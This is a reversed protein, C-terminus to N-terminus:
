RGIPIDGHPASGWRHSGAALFGSSSSLWYWVGTSARWLTFDVRGDGDLDKMLPVDGLSQNGFQRAGAAAYDFATTSTLWYWTGTSARWVIPDAKGDGDVDGTFPMDGLSVNGWQIPQANAYNFDTSSTLWYWTGTSGRWIGLDARNDGDFDGLLPTDGLDANGWQIARMNAYSYNTSSTLWYWTGTSARWVVLDSRGDGDMDALRPVDGLADSGFQVSGHPVGSASGIWFWTATTARWVVFDAKGDGDMDAMFPRDGHADSGFERASAGYYYSGSTTWYFMGTSRRWIALDDANDGDVDSSVATGPGRFVARCERPQNVELMVQAGAFPGLACDGLWRSFIYGPAPTATLTIRAPASLHTVCTSAGYGCNLSAGTVTGNAPPVISVRYDPYAGNFPELSTVSSNYRIGGFLGKNGTRRCHIEFDVALRAVTGDDNFAVEHVYFWADQSSPSCTWSLENSFFLYPLEQATTDRAGYYASLERWGKYGPYFTMDWRTTGDFVVRVLPIQTLQSAYRWTAVFRGSQEGHLFKHGEGYFEGPESDLFLATIPGAEFHAECRIRQNVRVAAPIFGFGACAPSWGTFVYGPDPTATLGVTAPADLTLSCSTQSGGCAIGGGTVTGHAPRVVDLSYVPYHGGFPLFAYISSRYRISGFVGADGGACHVEFDVAFRTVSGDAALELEHITFRGSDVLFASGLATTGAIPCASWPGMNPGFIALSPVTGGALGGSWPPQGFYYTSAAAWGAPGPEFSLTWSRTDAMTLVDVRRAGSSAVPSFRFAVQDDNLSTEVGGTIPEGDGGVLYFSTHPGPDGSAVFRAGCPLPQNIHVTTTQALGVCFGTWGLFVYGPDALASVTILGPTARVGRCDSQTASCAIGEGTITGGLPPTILLSYDPYAGEFPVLSAITSNYRVAGFLAADRNACHMEFDAAFRVVTTGSLEMERITFRGTTRPSVHNCDAGFSEVYIEPYLAHSFKAGLYTGVGLPVPSRPSSHLFITWSPAPAAPKVSIAVRSRNDVTPTPPSYQLVFEAEAGGITTTLGQGVPDGPQSETYLATTQAGATGMGCLVILGLSVGLRVIAVDRLM